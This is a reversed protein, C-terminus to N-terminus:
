ADNANEVPCECDVLWRDCTVCDWWAIVRVEGTIANVTRATRLLLRRM